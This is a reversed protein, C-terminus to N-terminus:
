EKSNTEFDSLVVEMLVDRVKITTMGFTKLIEILTFLYKPTQYNHHYAWTKCSHGFLKPGQVNIKENNQLNLSVNYINGQFM